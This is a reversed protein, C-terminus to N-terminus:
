IKGWMPIKGKSVLRSQKELLEQKVKLTPNNSGANPHV